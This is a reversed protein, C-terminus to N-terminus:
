PEPCALQPARESATASPRAGCSADESSAWEDAAARYSDRLDSPDRRTAWIVAAIGFTAGGVGALPYGHNIAVVMLGLYALALVLSMLQAVRQGAYFRPMEQEDITVLRNEVQHRHAQEREGVSLLRGAVNPLHEAYRDLDDPSPLPSTYSSQQLGVDLRATRQWRADHSAHRVVAQPEDARSRVAVAVDRDSSTSSDEASM